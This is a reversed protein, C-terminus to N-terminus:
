KPKRQIRSSVLWGVLCAAAVGIMVETLPDARALQRAPTALTTTAKAAVTRGHRHPRPLPGPAIKLLAVGILASVVALAVLAGIVAEYAIALGYNAELWHFLANIGVGVAAALGAGALLLM